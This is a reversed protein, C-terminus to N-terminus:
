CHFALVFAFTVRVFLSSVFALVIVHSVAKTMNDCQGVTVSGKDCQGM